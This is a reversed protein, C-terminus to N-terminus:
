YFSVNEVDVSVNADEIYTDIFEQVDPSSLNGLYKDLGVPGTFEINISYSEIFHSRIAEISKNLVKAVFEMQGDLCYDNEEADEIVASVLRNEFSLMKDNLTRIESILSNIREGQQTNLLSLETVQAELQGIKIDKDSMESGGTNTQKNTSM